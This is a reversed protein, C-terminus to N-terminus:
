YIGKIENILDHQWNGNLSIYVIGNYDSPIEIEPEKLVIVKSRGLRGFFYGTEFIVNQRARPNLEKEGKEMGEDDSTWLAIAFDVISHSEFKEILTRGKNAQEHLIIVNIGLEKEILRAVNLKLVENHGHILFCKNTIEKPKQKQKMIKLEGNKIRDILQNFIPLQRTFNNKLGYGNQDTLYSCFDKYSKESEDFYNDFLMKSKSYWELYLDIFESKNVKSTRFDKIRESNYKNALEILEKILDM